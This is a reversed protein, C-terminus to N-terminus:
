WVPRTLLDWKTLSTQFSRATMKFDRLGISMGELEARSFGLVEAFGCCRSRRGPCRLGESAPETLSSHWTVYRHFCHMVCSPLNFPGVFVDKEHSPMGEYKHHDVRTRIGTTCTGGSLSADPRWYVEVALHRM